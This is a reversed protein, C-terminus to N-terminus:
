IVPEFMQLIVNPEHFIAIKRKYFIFPNRSFFKYFFGIQKAHFLEIFM